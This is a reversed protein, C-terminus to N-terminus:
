MLFDLIDSIEKSQKVPPQWDIQIAKVNQMILANYFNVLGINIVKPKERLYCHAKVQDNENFNDCMM